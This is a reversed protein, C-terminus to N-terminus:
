FPTVMRVWNGSRALFCSKGKMLDDPWKRRSFLKIKPSFIMRPCCLFKRLFYEADSAIQTLENWEDNEKKSSLFRFPFIRMTDFLFINKKKEGERDMIAENDL